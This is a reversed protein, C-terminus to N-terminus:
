TSNSIPGALLTSLYARFSSSSSVGITIIMLFLFFLVIAISFRYVAIPGTYLPCNPGGLDEDECKISNSKIILRVLNVGFHIVVVLYSAFCLFLCMLKSKLVLQEAFLPSFPNLVDDVIDVYNLFSYFTRLRANTSNFTRIISM